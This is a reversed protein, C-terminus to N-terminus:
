LIGNNGGLDELNIIPPNDHIFKKQEELFLQMIRGLESAKSLPAAMMIALSLSALRTYKEDIAEADIKKLYKFYFNNKSSILKDNYEEVGSTLSKIYGTPKLYIIREGLNQVDAKKLIVEDINIGYNENQLMDSIMMNYFVDGVNYASSTEQDAENYPFGLELMAARIVKHKVM